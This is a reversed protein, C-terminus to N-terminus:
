LYIEIHDIEVLRLLLIRIKLPIPGNYFESYNLDYYVKEHLSKCNKQSKNLSLTLNPSFIPPQLNKKWKPGIKALLHKSIQHLASSM